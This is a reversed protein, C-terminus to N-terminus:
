TSFPILIKKDCINRYSCTLCKKPNATPEFDRKGLALEHMRNIKELSFDLWEQSFVDEWIINGRDRNKIMMYINLPPRYRDKFATAYAAVQSKVSLYPYKVPKDDCIIIGEPGIEVVDIKGILRFTPSVIFIERGAFREQKEIARKIANVIDVDELDKTLEKFEQFKENHIKSGKIMQETKIKIGKWIFKLQVECYSQINFESISLWSEGNKDIRM